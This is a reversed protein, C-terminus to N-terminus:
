DGVYDVDPVFPKDNVTTGPGKRVQNHGEADYFHTGEGASDDAVDNGGSGIVRVEIPSDVRPHSVARDDGGQLYIRIERTEGPRFVRDFYPPKVSGDDVREAVTVEISGDANRLIDALEARETGWVEAERALMAYYQLAYDALARRRAQLSELMRPGVIEFYES